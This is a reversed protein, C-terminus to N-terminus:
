ARDAARLKDGKFEDAKLAAVLRIKMTSSMDREAVITWDEGIQSCFTVGVANNEAHRNSTCILFDDFRISSRLV